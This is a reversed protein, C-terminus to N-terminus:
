VFLGGILSLLIWTVVFILVGTGIIKPVDYPTNGYVKGTQGNIMFARMEGKYPNALYYVPMMVNDCLMNNINYNSTEINHSDYRSLEGLLRSQIFDQMRGRALKESEERSVDLIEALFGSLYAPNFAKFSNYDFPEISQMLTDDMKTSSDVPVNDYRVSGGREFDYYSTECYDYESDSWYKKITAEGNIYGDVDAGFMWFPAYIGRIEKVRRENKFSSPAFFRKKIWTRYLEEAQKSTISFPIIKNPNIEGQFKGALVVPSKCYICFTAAETDQAVIESGCNNCHYEQLNTNAAPQESGFESYVQKRSAQTSIVGAEIEEESFTSSCFDCKWKGSPPDFQVSNGCNLCKYNKMDSM